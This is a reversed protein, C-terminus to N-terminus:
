IALLRQLMEDVVTIVRANAAYNQEILLLSQLEADTDVGEALELELLAARRSEAVGLDTEASLRTVSVQSLLGHALDSLRHDGAPLTPSVAPSLGTLASQIQGVLTSDGSPGPAAAGLGDRWKWLTASGPAVESNLSLRGSLGLEDAADVLAGADTFLGADTAALTTDPGGPGFRAALEVAIADLSEQLAPAVSDRVEFHAGLSGGSFPGNDVAGYSVGNIQLESLGAGLTLNPQMANVPSFSVEVPLGDLLTAGQHTFLAVAGRDRPVVLLPVIDSINDIQVQRQDELASTDQGAMSAVLIQENIGHIVQVGANLADVERAIAADASKRAQQVGDSLSNFSQVLDQAADAVAMLRIQSSPDAAASILASDFNSLATSLTDGTLADGFLREIDSAFSLLTNAHGADAGAARRDAILLPNSWRVTGDMMVGGHDSVSNASVALSRQGYGPTLANSINSSVLAASRSAVAIGSIANSMAGNLSM